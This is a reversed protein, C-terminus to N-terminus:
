YLFSLQFYSLLHFTNAYDIEEVIKLLKNIVIQLISKYKKYRFHNKM